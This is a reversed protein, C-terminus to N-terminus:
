LTIEGSNSDEKNLVDKMEVISGDAKVHTSPTEEKSPLAKRPKPLKRKRPSINKAGNLLYEIFEDPCARKIKDYQINAASLFRNATEPRYMALDNMIEIETHGLLRCAAIRAIVATNAAATGHMIPASVLNNERMYKMVKSTLEQIEDIM